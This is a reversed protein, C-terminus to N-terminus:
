PKSKEHLKGCHPCLLKGGTSLPTINRFFLAAESAKDQWAKSQGEERRKHALKYRKLETAFYRKGTEPCLRDAIVTDCLGCEWGQEGEVLPAGCFPCNERGEDAYVMARLLLQQLRRFSDVDFLSLHLGGKGVEAFPQALWYEDAPVKKEFAKKETDTVGGNRYFLLCVSYTKEKNVAFRIGEIGGCSVRELGAQWGAFRATANLKAFHLKQKEPFEFHFHGVAFVSLLTCYAAYGEEPFEEEREQNLFDEKGEFRKLLAYVQRYDKQLRFINTRKLTLKSKDRKCAKYVPQHLKSRLTKEIFALKELCRQHVQRYSNQAHAYGLHLKGIALFYMLHNTRELLNFQMPQCSYLVDQLIRTNRKVFRLIGDVLRVFAINEYLKYEEVSTLTMLKRPALEGNKVEGWYEAHTSIHGVTANNIVRVAEVPLVDTVDKLRTIPKAFIRKLAPLAALIKDLTKELAYFREHEPLAFLNVRQTTAYDWQAYTCKEQEKVFNRLALYEQELSQPLLADM